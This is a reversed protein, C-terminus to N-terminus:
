KSQIWVEKAYVSDYTTGDDLVFPLPTQDMNAIDADTFVGNKRVTWLESHFQSVQTLLSAPDKQASHTKRRLSIRWRKMFRQLWNRSFKFTNNSHMENLIQKGRIRFWWEKVRKGVKRAERFEAYLAEEMVPFMAVRGRQARQTYKQKRITSENKVWSRVQKRDIEFENATRHLNGKARDHYFAVVQLKYERTYSSRTPAM